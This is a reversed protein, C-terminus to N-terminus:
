RVHRPRNTVTESPPAEALVFGGLSEAITVVAARGPAGAWLVLRTVGIRLAALAVGTGDACDLIDICAVDPFEARARAVLAHWWGCGAHLAAGEASILTVPAGQALAARAEALSCVRIAPPLGTAGAGTAGTGTAGTITAGTGTAFSPGAAAGPCPTPVGSWASRGDPSTERSMSMSM